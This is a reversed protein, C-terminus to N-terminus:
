RISLYTGQEVKVSRSLRIVYIASDYFMELPAYNHISTNMRIGPSSLICMKDQEASCVNIESWFRLVHKDLFQIKSKSGRLVGQCCFSTISEDQFM